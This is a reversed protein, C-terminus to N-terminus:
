EAKISGHEIDWRLDTLRGGKALFDEYAIGPNDIVIQLSRFGHSNKRRPNDEVLASLKKGEFKSKRGAKGAPKEPAPAAADTEPLPQDPEIAEPLGAGNETSAPIHFTKGSPGEPGEAVRDDRKIAKYITSASMETLRALDKVTRPGETLFHELEANM